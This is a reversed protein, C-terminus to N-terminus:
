YYEKIYLYAKNFLEEEKHLKYKLLTKRLAKQVEREGAVTTQWGPFRVIKVINDIDDVIRGVVAPTDETRLEMFLESLAAKADKEIAVAVDEKEAQLTEKALQCLEKIFDISSILGQEAKARLDELRKSLEIFKLKGANRQFRKILEKELQKIKRPDHKHMLEDVVIEDLIMEELNDHVKDVHINEHILRTTEAGFAMWLLKGNSEPGAPKVSAYISSLWKYDEKYPALVADPSLSEWLKAMFMYDKAFADRKENTNICEQAAQLGDFGNQSRDVGPFHNVADLMAQPVQSKLVDMNSIITKVTEEDFQLAKATDDFVGFYDVIRGFSKQPYVRNTRCIAQLLTHDKLSKDLYMTQLIPADFGTM